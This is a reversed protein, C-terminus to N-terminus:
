LPRFRGREVRSADGSELLLFIQGPKALVFREILDHPRDEEPLAELVATVKAPRIFLPLIADEERDVREFLPIHISNLRLAAVEVHRPVDLLVDDLRLSLESRGQSPQSFRM